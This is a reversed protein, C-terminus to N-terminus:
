KRSAVPRHDDALLEEPIGNMKQGVFAFYHLPEGNMSLRHQYKRTEILDLTGDDVMREILRSFGSSEDTELFKDRINFAIWGRDDILNFAERFAEPPIDGFGLAAVTTLCNFTTNELQDRSGDSLDTLDEVLYEAYVGSRDRETAEAAESILDLGVVAEVGRKRLEQGVMGNGAGVDLVTLDSVAIPDDSKGVTEKLLDCMVSPSCCELRDYFIHEYLGPVSFIEDYDHFRVRKEKNAIRVICWEEDQGLNEQHGPFSVEFDRKTDTDVQIENTM